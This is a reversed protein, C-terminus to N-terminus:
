SLPRQRIARVTEDASRRQSETVGLWGHESKPIPLVDDLPIREAGSWAKLTGASPDDIELLSLVTQCRGFYNRFLETNSAQSDLLKLMEPWKPKFEAIEPVSSYAVFLFPERSERIEHENKITGKSLKDKEKDRKGGREELEQARIADYANYAKNLATRLGETKAIRLRWLTLENLDRIHRENAMVDNFIASFPSIDSLNYLTRPHIFAFNFLFRYDSNKLARELLSSQVEDPYKRRLWRMKRSIMAAAYSMSGNRVSDRDSGHALLWVKFQCLRLQREYRFEPERTSCLVEVCKRLFEQLSLDRVPRKVNSEASRNQEVKAKAM